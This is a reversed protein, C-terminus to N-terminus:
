FKVHMKYIKWVATWKHKSSKICKLSLWVASTLGTILLTCFLVATGLAWFLFEDLRLLTFGALGPFKALFSAPLFRCWCSLLISACSLFSLLGAEKDINKDVKHLKNMLGMYSNKNIILMVKCQFLAKCSVITVTSFLVYDM